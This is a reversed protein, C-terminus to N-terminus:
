YFLPSVALYLYALAWMLIHCLVPVSLPLSHKPEPTLILGPPATKYLKLGLDWAQPLWVTHALCPTKVLKVTFVKETM